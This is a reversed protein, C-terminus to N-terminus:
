LNEAKGPKYCRHQLWELQGNYGSLVSSSTHIHTLSRTQSLILLVKNAFTSVITHTHSLIWLAKNAFTPMPGSTAWLSDNASMQEQIDTLKSAFQNPSVCIITLPNWTRMIFFLYINTLYICIYNEIELREKYDRAQPLPSVGNPLQSIRRGLNMWRMGQWTKFSFFAYTPPQPM